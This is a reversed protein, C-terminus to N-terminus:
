PLSVPTLSHGGFRMPMFSRALPFLEGAGSPDLKQFADQSHHAPGRSHVSSRRTPLSADLLPSDFLHKTVDDKATWCVITVCVRACVFSVPPPPSLSFADLPTFYFPSFTTPLPLCFHWGAFAASFVFQRYSDRRHHDVAPAPIWWNPAGRNVARRRESWVRGM